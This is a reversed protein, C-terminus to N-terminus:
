GQQQEQKAIVYDVLEDMTRPYNEVSEEDVIADIMKELGQNGLDRHFTTANFGMAPKWDEGRVRLQNGTVACVPVKNGTLYESYLKQFFQKFHIESYKAIRTALEGGTLPAFAIAYYAIIQATIVADRASYDLFKMPDSLWLKDMQSIDDGVDGKQLGIIKGGTKLSGLVMNTSDAFHLWIGPRNDRKDTGVEIVSGASLVMPVLAPSRRRKCNKRKLEEDSIWSGDIWHEVCVNKKRDCIRAKGHWQKKDCDIVPKEFSVEKGTKSDVRSVKDYSPILMGAEALSFHSCIHVKTMPIKKIESNGSQFQEYTTMTDPLAKAIFERVLAKQTLRRSSILVVCFHELGLNFYFQQSVMKRDTTIIGNEENAEPIREVDVYEIDYGILAHRCNYAAYGYPRCPTCLYETVNPRFIKMSDVYFMDDRLRMWGDHEEVTVVPCGTISRPAIRALRGLAAAIQSIDKFQRNFISKAKEIFEDSLDSLHRKAHYQIFNLLKVDPQKTPEYQSLPLQQVGRDDFMRLQLKKTM